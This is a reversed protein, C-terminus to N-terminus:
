YLRQMDHAFLQLGHFIPISLQGSDRLRLQVRNGQGSLDVRIAEIVGSGLLNDISYPTWGASDVNLELALRASVVVNDLRGTWGPTDDDVPKFRILANSAGAALDATFSGNDAQNTLAAGGLEAALYKGSAKSAASQGTVIYSVRYLAGAILGLTQQLWGVPGGSGPATMGATGSSIVWGTGKTWATDTTFAGNTVLSTPVESDINVVARHLAKIYAPGTAFHVPPLEALLEYRSGGTGNFLVDDLAGTDMHRVFGASDGAIIFEDGFADEYRAMCTIAFPYQWPGSWAQIRSAWCYLTQNGTDGSDQVALWLERRGRHYILVSSSLASRDLGDLTPEIKLSIPRVGAEEVLYVGSTSLIALFEEAPTIALGGVPGHVASIGETDQAVRIDDSAYGTFRALSDETGVVLSSGVLGLANIAEGSLLDIPNSGGSSIDNLVVQWDLNKLFASDVAFMRTHYAIVRIAAPADNTGDIRVLATGSWRYMKGGSAIYLVLAAGGSTSRFPAFYSAATTSFVDGGAPIVETFAAFEGASALRHYLRGGAIAVIQPGSPSDWQVLGKIAAGSALATEHLRRSGTRKTLAGTSADLRVNQAGVLEDTGLQDPNLTTNLGGVWNFRAETLLPKPSM